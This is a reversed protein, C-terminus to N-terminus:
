RSGGTKPADAETPNPLKGGVARELAFRAVWADRWAEIAAKESEIEMRKALLVDYVGVLMSNYHRLTQDLIRVRRPLVSDRYIRALDRAAVYRDATERVESGVRILLAEVQREARRREAELKAISAAGTDFIPLEIGLVPGTVRVRDTDRERSIGIRVGGPFFRGARRLALAQDILSVGARAAAVDLRDSLALAELAGGDVEDGPPDLPMDMSTWGAEGGTLGMLRQLAERRARAAVQAHVQDIKTEDLLAQQEELALQPLNGAARQREAFTAAAQEIEVILGLREVLRDAAQLEAFAQKTEVVLDLMQQGVRLKAAQLETAVMRKRLPLLLPDLLNEILGIEVNPVLGSRNPRRYFFDLSPNAIRTAQAYEAQSIGLDELDALLGPNNWLAVQAARDPDLPEALLAKSREALNATAGDNRPWAPELGSREAVPRAASKFAGDPNTTVCGAAALALFAGLYTFRFM